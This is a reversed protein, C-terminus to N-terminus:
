AGREGVRPGFVAPLIPHNTDHAEDQAFVRPYPFILGNDM